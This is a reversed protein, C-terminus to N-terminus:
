ATRILNEINIEFTYSKKLIEESNIESNETLITELNYNM